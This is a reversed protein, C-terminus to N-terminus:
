EEELPKQTAEKAAKASALIEDISMISLMKAAYRMKKVKLASDEDLTDEWKRLVKDLREGDETDGLDRIALGLCSVLLVFDHMNLEGMKVKDM